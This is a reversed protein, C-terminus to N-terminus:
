RSRRSRAGLSGVAFLVFHKEPDLDDHSTIPSGRAVRGIKAADIDHISCPGIVVLLRHDHRDLIRRLVARGQLVTLEAEQTLPLSHKVQEPTPLLDQSIVNINNVADEPALAPKSTHPKINPM